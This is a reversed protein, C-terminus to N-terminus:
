SSKLAKKAKQRSRKKLKKLYQPYENYRQWFLSIQPTDLSGTNRNTSQEPPSDQIYLFSGDSDLSEAVETFSFSGKHFDLSEYSSEQFSPTFSEMYAGFHSTPLASIGTADPLDISQPVGTSEKYLEFDTYFRMGLDTM